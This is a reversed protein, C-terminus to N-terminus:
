TDHNVIGREYDLAYRAFSDPSSFPGGGLVKVTGPNSRFMNTTGNETPTYTYRVELTNEHGHLGPARSQNYAVAVAWATEQMDLYVTGILLQNDQRVLVENEFKEVAQRTPGAPKCGFFKPM